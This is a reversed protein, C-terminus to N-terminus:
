AELSGYRESSSALTTLLVEIRTTTVKGTWYALEGDDPLHQQDVVVRRLSM